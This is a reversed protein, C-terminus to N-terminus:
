SNEDKACIFEVCFFSVTKSHTTYYVHYVLCISFAFRARVRLSNASYLLNCNLVSNNLPM